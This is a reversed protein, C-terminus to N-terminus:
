TASSDFYFPIFHLGAVIVAFFVAVFLAKCGSFIVWFYRYVLGSFEAVKLL